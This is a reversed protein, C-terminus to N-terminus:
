SIMTLWLYPETYSQILAMWNPSAQHSRHYLIQRCRSLGLNLGQTPITGPSPFPLGSRYEQRSFEVSLPAQCNGCPWLSDSVVSCSESPSIEAFISPFPPWRYSLFLKKNLSIVFSLVTRLLGRRKQYKKLPPFFPPSHPLRTLKETWSNKM